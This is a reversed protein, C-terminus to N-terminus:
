RRLKAADSQMLKNPARVRKVLRRIGTALAYIALWPAFYVLSFLWGGFLVFVGSAGDSDWGEPLQKGQAMLDNLGLHYSVYTSIALGWGVVLVIILILWWPPRNTTFKVILLVPAIALISYLCLYAIANNM